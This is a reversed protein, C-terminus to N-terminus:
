LQTLWQLYKKIIAESSYNHQIKEYWAQGIQKRLKEDSILRVVAEYFAETQETPVLLAEQKHTLMAPLEGVATVVVPLQQQGYELVAVPLGESVSTLVGITSQQLIHEVDPQAGYLFVQNQLQKAQINSKIERAYEDGFDKGVLHWTWDPHSKKLREAVALLLNHNKEARLNALCVIRKENKGKLQTKRLIEKSAQAFNPLYLVGKVSFEKEFWNKLEQNVVVIRNSFLILMRFTNKKRNSVDQINGRHYHWILVLKPLTCKLLVAWFFSTSHAHIHTIQHRKVFSRLKIFAKWDMVEKKHLCSYAVKTNLQGQLLGEKRTAVLASIEIQSVLANAYQVAMREAGGTELTDILQLIRM